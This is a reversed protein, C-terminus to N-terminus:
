NKSFHLDFCWHSIVECKDSHTHMTLIAIMLLDALLWHQFPHSSFPFEQVSKTPIYIPPAAISFLISTGKFVLFLVLFEMGTYMDPPFHCCYSSFINAGWYEYCCRNCNGLHPLLGFAWWCIFPCLLHPVYIHHFIPWSFSHFEAM